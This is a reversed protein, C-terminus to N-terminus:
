MCVRVCVADIAEDVLLHVFRVDVQVGEGGALGLAAAFELLIAKRAGACGVGLGLQFEGLEPQRLRHLDGVNADHVHVILQGVADGPQLIDHADAPCRVALVHPQLRQVPALLSQLQQQHRELVEAIVAVMIITAAIGALRAGGGTGDATTTTTTTTM